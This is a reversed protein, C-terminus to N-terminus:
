RKRKAKVTIPQYMVDPIPRAFKDRRDDMSIHRKPEFPFSATKYDSKLFRREIHRQIRFINKEDEQRLESLSKHFLCYDEPCSYWYVQLLTGADTHPNKAVALMPEEGGDWNWNDVFYQLEDKSTMAKLRRDLERRMKRDYKDFLDQGAKRSKEVMLADARASIEDRKGGDLYVLQMIEERRRKSLRVGNEPEPIPLVYSDEAPASVREAVQKEEAKQHVAIRTLFEHFSGAVLIAHSNLFVRKGQKNAVLPTAINDWLHVCGPNRLLSITFVPLPFFSCIPLHGEPLLPVIDEVATLLSHNPKSKSYLGYFYGVVESERGAVSVRTGLPKLEGGNQSLLFERYEAPLKAGVLREIKAVQAETAKRKGKPRTIKLLSPDVRVYGKAVKQDALKATAEKAASPSPFTKTTERGKTGLRGHRVTQKKGHLSYSWFKRSQGDDFFYRNSAM